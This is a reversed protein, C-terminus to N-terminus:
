RGFTESNGKTNTLTLTDDKLSKTATIRYVIGNEDTLSFTILSPDDKDQEYTGNLHFSGYSVKVKDGSIKIKTKKDARSTWTGDLDSGCSCLLALMALLSMLFLAIKNRTTKM